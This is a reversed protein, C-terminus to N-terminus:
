QLSIGMGEIVPGWRAIEARVLNDLDQPTGGIPQVGLYALRKRGEDSSIYENLRQNLGTV